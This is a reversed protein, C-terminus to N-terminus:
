VIAKAELSLRYGVGWVTSVVDKAGAEDLKQRLNKVHTDVARELADSEPMSAEVLELRTVTRGPTKALHHLLKYETPTLNLLVDDVRVSVEYNNIEINAVRILEETESVTENRRLVAKIHAILVRPSFPKTIYDDAGLGFGLIEDIEEARATLMVVPVVDSIRIKKLLDLGDLKPLGIDLVILDPAFARWLELARKGDAARETQYGEKKLFLEVTEAITQDDEVILIKQM